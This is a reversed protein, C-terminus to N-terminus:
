NNQSKYWVARGKNNKNEQFKIHMVNVYDELREYTNTYVRVTDTCSFKKQHTLYFRIMGMSSGSCKM